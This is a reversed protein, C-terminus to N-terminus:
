GAYAVGQELSEITKARLLDAFAATALELLVDAVKGPGSGAVTRRELAQLVYVAGAANDLLEDAFFQRVFARLWIGDGDPDASLRELARDMGENRQVIRERFREVATALTTEFLRREHLEM